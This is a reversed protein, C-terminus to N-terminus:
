KELVESVREDKEAEGEQMWKRGRSIRTGELDEM